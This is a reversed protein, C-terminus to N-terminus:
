GMLLVMGDNAKKVHVVGKSKVKRKWNNNNYIVSEIFVQINSSKFKIFMIIPTHASFAVLRCVIRCMRASLAASQRACVKVVTSNRHTHSLSLSPCHHGM